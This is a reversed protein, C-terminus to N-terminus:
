ARTMARKAKKKKLEKGQFLSGIRGQDAGEQKKKRHGM